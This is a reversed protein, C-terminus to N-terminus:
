RCSRASSRPESTVSPSTAECRVSPSVSLISGVITERTPKRHYLFRDHEVIVHVTLIREMGDGGVAVACRAMNVMDYTTAPVKIITGLKPRM